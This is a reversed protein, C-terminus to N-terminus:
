LVMVKNIWRTTGNRAFRQEAKNIINPVARCRDTVCRFWVRFSCTTLCIFSCLCKSILGITKSRNAVGRKIMEKTDPHTSGDSFGQSYRQAYKM